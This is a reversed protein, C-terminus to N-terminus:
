VEVYDFSCLCEEGEGGDWTGGYLGTDYNFTIGTVSQLSCTIPVCDTPEPGTDDGGYNADESPLDVGVVLPHTAM